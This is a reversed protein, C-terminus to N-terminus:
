LRFVSDETLVVNCSLVSCSLLLSLYLLLITHVWQILNYPMIDNVYLRVCM